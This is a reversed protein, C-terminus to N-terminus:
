GTVLRVDLWCSIQQHFGGKFASSVHFICGIAPYDLHINIRQVRLVALLRYMGLGIASILRRDNCVHATYLFYLSVEVCTRLSLHRIRGLLRRVTLARLRNPYQTSCFLQKFM